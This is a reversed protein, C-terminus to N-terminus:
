YPEVGTLSRDTICLRSPDIATREEAQRQEQLEQSLALLQATWPEAGRPELTHLPPAEVYGGAGLGVQEVSSASSAQKELSSPGPNLHIDGALLMLMLLIKSAQTKGQQSTAKNGKNDKSRNSKWWFSSWISYLTNYGYGFM